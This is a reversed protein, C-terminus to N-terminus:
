SVNCRNLRKEQPVPSQLSKFHGFPVNLLVVITSNRTILLIVQYTKVKISTIVLGTCLRGEVVQLIILQAVFKSLRSQRILVSWDQLYIRLQSDSPKMSQTRSIYTYFDAVGGTSTYYRWNSVMCYWHICPWVTKLQCCVVREVTCVLDVAM